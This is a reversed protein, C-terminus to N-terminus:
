EVSPPRIAVHVKPTARELWIERWYPYISRPCFVRHESFESLCYVNQLIICPNSFEMMSGKKEDIIRHVRKSVKFTGGCFRVMEPAFLMGRNRNRTDLTELIQDLSKVRVLEGPQLSLEGTPTVKLTGQIYPWPTGHSRAQFWNYFRLLWRYGVGFKVLRRYGTFVLARFLEGARVNGSAFDRVYQRVDWWVLPRTYAKLQTAQCRYIGADDKDPEKVVAVRRLKADMATQADRQAPTIEIERGPPEKPEPRKLWAENWFLLCSAECGGHAAGDCRLGDSQQAAGLHVTNFLRRGGTKDITDCTKDARKYVTFRKNCFQLMEPMFPLSDLCGHEDLTALIEEASRVEVAEGVRLGLARGVLARSENV